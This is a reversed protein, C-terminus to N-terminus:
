SALPGSSERFILESAADAVSRVTKGDILDLLMRAARRGREVINRSLATVSPSNVRCLFSDDWAIVSLDEPVRVGLRMATRVASVAMVDNDYIIATPPQPLSLLRETCKDGEEPSYDTHFCSYQMDLAATEEMCASDRIFTHTLEEPGAIRAIRRHGLESCYDVLLHAASPEDDSLTTLGDAVSSDCLLLAPMGSHESFLKVRPDGLEVNMLLVGDVAGTAIWDRLVELESQQSNAYRVTLSYGDKELEATLGAILEMTYTEVSLVQTTHTMVLGVTNASANSLAKAASNPRWGLRDAVKLVKDRTEVSVGPKGNLAYSVASTSVGAAEAVDSITVKSKLM